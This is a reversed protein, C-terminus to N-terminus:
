SVPATAGIEAYMVEPDNKDARYKLEGLFAGNLSDNLAQKLPTDVTACQVHQELFRRLNFMTRDFKVQDNKDFMFRVRNTVNQPGGFKALEEADVDEKAEIARVIFDCTDFAGQGITDTSPLKTIAWVYHGIPPLPPREIDGLNTNLVDTFNLSM